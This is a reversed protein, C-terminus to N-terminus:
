MGEIQSADLIGMAFVLIVALLIALSLYLALSKIKTGVSTQYYAKVRKVEKKIEMLQYENKHYITEVLSDFHTAADVELTDERINMENLIRRLIQKEAKSKKIETRKKEQLVPFTFGENNQLYRNVNDKREKIKVFLSTFQNETIDSHGFDSSQDALFRFEKNIETLVNEEHKMIEMDTNKKFQKWWTVLGFIFILILIPDPSIFLIPILVLLGVLWINPSLVSVIRGGDLPSVPFLNFLNILAGLQIVLAWYPDGTTTYLAFAPIISILGALPGGYAVFFETKANDIKKPDIGIAAGLFPIFVAPSTPINKMKAAVLHGMEHIFILYVLAIAFKWGFFIAYAWLSVFMSALTAFKGVKLLVLLWKAKTLLFVGIVALWGWYSKNTNQKATTAM